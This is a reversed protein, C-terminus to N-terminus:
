RNERGQKLDVQLYQNSKNNPCSSSIRLDIVDSSSLQYENDNQLQKTKIRHEPQRLGRSMKEGLSEDLM